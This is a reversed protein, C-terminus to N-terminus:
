RLREVLFKRSIMRRNETQIQLYYLGNEYGQVDITEVSQNFMKVPITTKQQGYANFIHLSGKQGKLAEIQVQLTTRVPNPFLVIATKDLQFAVKKISSHRNKQNLFAQNIRYYNTGFQPNEDTWQFFQDTQTLIGVEALPEFNEGDISHEVVFYDTQPIQGAIWELQVTQAKPYTAIEFVDQSVARSGNVTSPVVLNDFSTECIYQWNIDYLKISISYTGPILVGYAGNCHRGDENETCTRVENGNEDLVVVIHRESTIGSVWILDPRDPRIEANV